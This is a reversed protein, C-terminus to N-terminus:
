SAVPEVSFPMHEARWQTVVASAEEATAYYGLYHYKGNVTAGARWKSKETNWKVGRHGSRPLGSNNERHVLLNQANQARTCVRLNGRRNDLRDGNIHDVEQGDGFRLGMILRHASVGRRRRWNAPDRFTRVAYGHNRHWRFGALLGADADDVIM